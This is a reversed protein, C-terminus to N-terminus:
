LINCRQRPIKIPKSETQELPAQFTIESFHEPQNMDGLSLNGCLNEGQVLWRGHSTQLGLSSRGTSLNVVTEGAILTDVCLTKFRFGLQASQFDSFMLYDDSGAGLLRGYSTLILSINEEAAIKVIKEDPQLFDPVVETFTTTNPIHELGLQGQQNDGKVLLKGRKSLALVHNKSAALITISDNPSLPPEFVVPTLAHHTKDAHSEWLRGRNSLVFYCADYKLIVEQVRENEAFPLAIKHFQHYRQKKDKDFVRHEDPERVFLANNRTLLASRNGGAFIQVVADHNKKLKKLGLPIFVGSQNINKGLAGYENSGCVLVRHTSTLIMSHKYGVAVSQISEGEHLALPVKTFRTIDPAKSPQDDLGLQGHANNGCSWLNKRIDLFVSFHSGFYLRSAYKQYNDIRKDLTNNWRFFSCSARLKALTLGDQELYDVVSRLLEPLPTPTNKHEAPEEMQM